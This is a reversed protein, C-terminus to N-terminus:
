ANNEKIISKDKWRNQMGIKGAKSRNRAMRKNYRIVASVKDSEYGKDTKQILGDCDSSAAYDLVELMKAPTIKLDRGLSEAEFFSIPKGGNRYLKELLAYYAAYGVAGYRRVLAKIRADDSLSDVPHKFWISPM